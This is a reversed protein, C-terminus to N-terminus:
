KFDPLALYLITSEFSYCDVHSASLGGSSPSGGERAGRSCAGAHRHESLDVRFVEGVDRPDLTMAILWAGQAALAEDESGANLLERGYQEVLPLDGQTLALFGSSFQVLLNAPALSRARELAPWAQDVPRPSEDFGHLYTDIALVAYVAQLDADEPHSRIAGLVSQYAATHTRASSVSLYTEYRQLVDCNASPGDRTRRYSFVPVYSRPKLDILVDATSGDLASYLALAKRLRNSAVRIVSDESSKFGPEKGFVREAVRAAMLTGDRGALIEEVLFRLLEQPKPSQRFAQSQLIRELERM